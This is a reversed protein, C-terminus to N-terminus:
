RSPYQSPLKQSDKTSIAGLGGAAAVLAPTRGGACRATGGSGFLRRDGEGDEGPEAAHQADRTAFSAIAASSARMRRGLARPHFHVAVNAHSTAAWAWGGSPPWCRGAAIWCGRACWGAFGTAFCPVGTSM